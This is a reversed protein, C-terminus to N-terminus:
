YSTVMSGGCCLRPECWWSSSPCRGPSGAVWTVLWLGLERPSASAVVVVSAVVVGVLVLLGAMEVCRSRVPLLLWPLGASMIDGVASASLAESKPKGEVVVSSEPSRTKGMRDTTPTSGAALELDSM